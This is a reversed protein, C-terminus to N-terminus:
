SGYTVTLTGASCTATQGEQTYVEVLRLCHEDSSVGTGSVFMQNPNGTVPGADYDGGYPTQGTGDGWEVTKLLGLRVLEDFDCATFVGRKLRGCKAMQGAIYSVDQVMEDPKSDDLGSMVQKAMVIAAIGIIAAVVMIEILTFGKQKSNKM